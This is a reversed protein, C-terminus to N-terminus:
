ETKRETDHEHHNHEVMNDETEETVPEGEWASGMLLELEAGALQWDRGSRVWELELALLTRMSELVDLFSVEGFGAAYKSLLSDTTAEAQPILTDTHWARRRAADILHHRVRAVARELDLEVRELDYEAADKMFQAEAVGAAIRKRWLPVSVTLSLMIDDDGGDRNAMPDDRFAVAYGDIAAEAPMFPRAGAATLALKRAGHLASPYPRDPDMARALNVGTYDIGLTMNPYGAKRALEVSRELADILSAQSQLDPNAAQITALSEEQSPPAPPFSLPIPDTPEASGRRGMATTLDAALTARHHFLTDHRDQVQGRELQVRLLDEQGALGFGVNSNVTEEAFGLLELQAELLRLQDASFAYEYYARKVDMFLRNREAYFQGLAAEAEAAARDERAQLTGFWPFSQAAQLKFDRSSSQIFHGYSFVPDELSAAQPIRELAARWEAHRAKLAPHNDAAELLYARLEDNGAFFAPAEMTAAGACFALLLALM